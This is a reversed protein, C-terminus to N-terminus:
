TGRYRIRYIAGALDDSVLLSGDPAVSVDAPRGWVRDGQLWGEAFPEYAVAKGAADLRVLTVRYGIKQSRNWSGHEAIFIQNRFATPFQTGTYFRMGLSAVHPGLKRAPPVFESCPHQKGFEPDSIDGGHCYPYGFHQPVKTVHNLEDPPVDDGLMDRGNDTFWLEKTRPDWDFGVSNRVGRAVTERGSGDANMREIHAYREPDPECINCPAGVNVYLKGDPGFAIFKRGHHGDSPLKDTVVVPEPPSQVRHEIDDFRLVRSVASVFLAGNHFAVGGPDRLGSAITHVSAQGGANPAAFTLAYVNGASSGVFLTGRDGWTMARASPVRAVLEISFGPPLKIQDLTPSQAACSQSAAINVSLTAVVAIFRWSKKTFDFRM